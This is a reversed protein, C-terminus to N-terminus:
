LTQRTKRANIILGDRTQVQVSSAGTEDTNVIWCLKEGNVKFGHPELGYTDKMMSVMETASGAVLM